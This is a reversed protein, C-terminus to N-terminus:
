EVTTGSEFKSIGAGVGLRATGESGGCSWRVFTSRISLGAMGALGALLKRLFSGGQAAPARTQAIRM